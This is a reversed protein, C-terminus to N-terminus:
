DDNLAKVTDIEMHLWPEDRQEAYDRAMEEIQYRTGTWTATAFPHDKLPNAYISATVRFRATDNRDYEADRWQQEGNKMSEWKSLCWITFPSVLWAIGISLGLTGIIALLDYLKATRQEAGASSALPNRTTPFQGTATKM